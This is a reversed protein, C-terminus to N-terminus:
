RRLPQNPRDSPARVRLRRIVKGLSMIILIFFYVKTKKWLEDPRNAKLEAKEAAKEEAKEVAKEAAKEVTEATVKEVAKEVAEKAAKETAADSTNIPDENGNAGFVVYVLCCVLFIM